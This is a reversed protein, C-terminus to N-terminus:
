SDTKAGGTSLSLEMYTLYEQYPQLTWVFYIVEPDVHASFSLVKIRQTDLSLTCPGSLICLFPLSLSMRCLGVIQNDNPSVIVLARM